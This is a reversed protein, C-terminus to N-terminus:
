STFGPLSTEGLIKLDKDYYLTGIVSYKKSAANFLIQSKVSAAEKNLSAILQPQKYSTISLVSIQNEFQKISSTDIYVIQEKSDYVSEWKQGPSQAFLKIGCLVLPVIFLILKKM